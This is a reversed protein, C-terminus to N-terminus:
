WIVSMHSITCRRSSRSSLWTGDSRSRTPWSTPCSARVKWSQSRLGRTSVCGTPLNRVIHFLNIVGSVPMKFSNSVNKRDLIATALEEKQKPTLANDDMGPFLHEREPWRAAFAEFFPNWFGSYNRKAMLPVYHTQLYDTLWAQQEKSAWSVAPMDFIHVPLSPPQMKAHLTLTILKFFLVTSKLRPINVNHCSPLPEAM